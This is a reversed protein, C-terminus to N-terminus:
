AVRLTFRSNERNVDRPNVNEWVLDRSILCNFRIKRIKDSQGLILCGTGRWRIIETLILHSILSEAPTQQTQVEDQRDCSPPLRTYFSPSHTWFGLYTYPKKKRERNWYPSKCKPCVKPPKDNRPTWEHGCRKCKLMVEYKHNCRPCEVEM